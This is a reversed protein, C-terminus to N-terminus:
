VIRWIVLLYQWYNNVCLYNISYVANIWLGTLMTEKLDKKYILLEERSMKKVKEFDISPPIFLKKLDNWNIKM